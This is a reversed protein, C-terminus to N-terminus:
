RLLTMKRTLVRPGAEYRLFYIGSAVDGGSADRGDWFRERRGPGEPGSALERVLRGESTYVALRVRAGPAPVDYRIRTSPNFPNPANPHLVAEVPLDSVDIAEGRGLWFLGDADSTAALALGDYRTELPVWGSPRRHYVQWATPPAGGPPRFAINMPAEGAGIVSVQYGFGDAGDPLGEGWGAAAVDPEFYRVALFGAEGAFAGPDVSAKFGTSDLSITGGVAGRLFDFVVERPTSSCNSFPDCGFIEFFGVGVRSLLLANQFVTGNDGIPTMQLFLDIDDIVFRVDPPARLRENSVVYLDVYATIFPNPIIGLALGPAINDETIIDTRFILLARSDAVLILAPLAAVARARGPTDVAAVVPPSIPDAAIGLAAIGSFSNATVLFNGVVTMSEVDRVDLLLTRRIITSPDTVSFVAIGDAGQGVYLLTGDLVADFYEFNPDEYSGLFEPTPSALSWSALLAPNGLAQSGRFTVFITAGSTVISRVNGYQNSILPGRGDFASVFIPNAPDAVDIVDIQSGAAVLLGSRFPAVANIVGGTSPILMTGAPQLFGEETVRLIRLSDDGTVAACLSDGSFFTLVRISAGLDIRDIESIEADPLLRLSTAVGANDGVVITSDQTAMAVINGGFLFSGLLQLDSTSSSQFVQIGSRGELVYFAYPGAVAWTAEAFTTGEGAPAMSGSSVFARYYGGGTKTVILSQGRLAVHNGNPVSITDLPVPATLTSIDFLAVSRSGPTGFLVAMRDNAVDISLDVGLSIPTVSVPVPNEPDTLDVIHLGSQAATAGNLAYLLRDEVFAARIFDVFLTPRYASLNEPADVDAVGVIRVGLGRNSVAALGARLDLDVFSGVPALLSRPVISGGLPGSFVRIGQSPEGAVVVTDSAAISRTSDSSLRSKHTLLPGAFAAYRFGGSDQSAVYLHGDSYDAHIYHGTAPVNQANFLDLPLVVRYVECATGPRVVALIRGHFSVADAPQGDFHDLVLAPNQPDSLLYVGFGSKTAVVLFEESAAVDTVSDPVSIRAEETFTAGGGTSFVVIEPPSLTAAYLYDDTGAAAVFIGPDAITDVPVPIGDVGVQFALGGSRGFLVLTQGAWELGSDVVEVPLTAIRVATDGPALRYAYLVNLETTYVLSDKGAIGEAALGQAPFSAILRASDPDTADFVATGTTGMNLYAISDRFAFRTVTSEPSISFSRVVPAFPNEIDLLLLGEPVACYATGEAVEIGIASTWLASGALELTQQARAARPAASAALLAAATAALALRLARTM